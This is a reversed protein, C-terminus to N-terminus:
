DSKYRERTEMRDITRPKIRELITSVRLEPIRYQKRRGHSVFERANEIVKIAWVDLTITIILIDNLTLPSQFNTYTNTRLKLNM